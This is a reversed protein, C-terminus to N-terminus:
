LQRDGRLPTIDAATAIRVVLTAAALTRAFGAFALADGPRGLPGGYEVLEEALLFLGPRNRRGSATSRRTSPLRRRTIRASSRTSRKTATVSPSTPGPEIWPKRRGAGRRTTARTASQM